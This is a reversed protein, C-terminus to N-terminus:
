IGEGIKFMSVICIILLGYILMVLFCVKRRENEWAWKIFDEIFELMQGKEKGM